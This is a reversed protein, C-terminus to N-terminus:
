TQFSFQKKIKFGQTNRTKNQKGSLIRHHGNEWSASERMREEEKGVVMKGARAEPQWGGILGSTRQAIRNFM